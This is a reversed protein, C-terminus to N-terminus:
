TSFLVILLNLMLDMRVQPLAHAISTTNSPPESSDAAASVGSPRSAITPCSPSTYNAALMNGQGVVNVPVVSCEYTVGCASTLNAQLETTNFTLVDIGNQITVIFYDIFDDLPGDWSFQLTHPTLQILKVDQQILTPPDAHTCQFYKKIGGRTYLVTMYRVSCLDWSWAKATRDEAESPREM